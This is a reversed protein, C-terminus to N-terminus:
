FYTMNFYSNVEQKEYAKKLSEEMAILPVRGISLIKTHFEKLNFNKGLEKKYKAKLREIEKEGIIYSVADYPNLALYDLYTEAEEKKIGSKNIYALAATYDLEKTQLMYDTMAYVAKTYNYWLVNLKDAEKNFYGNEYATNVAYKMWGHIYFIDHSLKYLLSAKAPEVSYILTEGPTIYQATNFKIKSYEFDRSFKARDYDLKKPLTILIDASQKDSLPVPPYITVQEFGARLIPPAPTIKIPLSLNPFLQKQEFFADAKKTDNSYTKLVNDYDPADKYKKALTYYDSPYVQVKKKYMRKQKEEATLSALIQPSIGEILAAEAKELNKRLATELKSYKMPVSYVEQFLYEYNESGIRFDAYEKEKLKSKLFNEYDTLSKKIEAISKKVQSKTVSDDSIKLVLASLNALYQNQLKTKEIALRLTLDPPNTLNEKAQALTEPIMELRGLAYGLKEQPPLYNKLLMEYIGEIPRLYWIPDLEFQKKVKADFLKLGVLEKLTYYDAKAFTSLASPNIQNLAESFSTLANVKAMESQTDPLDLNYHYSNLGLHVTEEQFMSAVLSTYKNGLAFIKDDSVLLNESQSIALASVALTFLVAGVLFTFGVIKKM